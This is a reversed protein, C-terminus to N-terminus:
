GSTGVAVVVVTINDDGGEDNAAQVLDHCARPMDGKAEMLISLLQEDSLLNSLGDSCLLFTDGSRLSEMRIDPAVGEMVGCARTIVNRYPSVLAEAPTLLGLRVQEQVLSHDETLLEIGGDRMRYARSDGMHAIAARDKELALAVVTTGMGEREASLRSEQIVRHNASQLAADLREPLPSEGLASALFYEQVAELAIRSAVEGANHGGMGDALLFLGAEPVLLHYDENHARVRGVDTAAAFRVPSSVPAAAPM